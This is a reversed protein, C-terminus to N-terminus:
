ERLFVFPNECHCASTNCLWCITCVGYYKGPLDSHRRDLYGVFVYVQIASITSYVEIV